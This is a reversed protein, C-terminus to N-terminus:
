QPKQVFPKTWAEKEEPLLAAPHPSTDHSNDRDKSTELAFGVQLLLSSLLSRCFGRGLLVDAIAM